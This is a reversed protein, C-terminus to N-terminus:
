QPLDTMKPIHALWRALEVLDQGSPNSFALGAIWTKGHPRCWQIQAQLRMKPGNPALAFAVEVSANTQLPQDTSLQLGGLGLDSVKGTVTVQGTTIDCPLDM